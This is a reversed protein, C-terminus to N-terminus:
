NYDYFVDGDNYGAGAPPFYYSYNRVSGDAFGVAQVGATHNSGFSTINYLNASSSVQKDPVFSGFSIDRITNGTPFTPQGYTSPVTISTFVTFPMDGQTKFGAYQSTDVHKDTLMATNSAGDTIDVMRVMNVDDGTLLGPYSNWTSSTIQANPDYQWGFEPSWTYTQNAYGAFGAYDCYNKNGPRRAPCVFVKVPGPNAVSFPANIQIDAEVYPLIGLYFTGTAASNGPLRGQQDHFGHIALVMQKQNNACQLRAVTARVRQVAPLLLGILVAIIAIVVLLEILTFGRRLRTLLKAVTTIEL